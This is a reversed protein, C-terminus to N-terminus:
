APRQFIVAQPERSACRSRVVRFYEGRTQRRPSLVSHSRRSTPCVRPRGSRSTGCRSRARLACRSISLSRIRRVSASTKQAAISENIGVDVECHGRRFCDGRLRRHTTALGRHRQRLRLHKTAHPWAEAARWSGLTLVYRAFCADLSSSAPRQREPGAQSGNCCSHLDATAKVAAFSKRSHHRACHQQM